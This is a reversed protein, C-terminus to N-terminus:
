GSRPLLHLVQGDPNPLIPLDDLWQAMERANTPLHAGFTRLELSGVLAARAEKDTLLADCYAYAVALADIDAIDNTRWVRSPNRHYHAKMSIAVQVQPMAAWLNIMEAPELLDHRLGDHERQKLHLVFLTMWEHAVDRGFILDRLRGRRWASKDNLITSTELEFDLRSQAGTAYIEPAYGRERLDAIERDQPGELLKRERIYNMEALRNEYAEDGLEKRLQPEIDNGAEDVFKFGGLHGFAWLASSHLLPMPAYSSPSNYIKDLGAAIELQVLFPRGLLYGFNSLEEMVDAVHGRQRPSPVAHAVEMFHIGSLPFRARGEAKARRAADLLDAYGPLVAIPRGGESAHGAASRSAKALQIYHNLDFYVLPVPPRTVGAWVLEEAVTAKLM